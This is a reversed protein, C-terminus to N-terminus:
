VVTPFRHEEVFANVSPLPFVAGRVGPTVLSYTGLETVHSTAREDLDSPLSTLLYAALDRVPLGAPPFDEYGHVYAVEVNARGESWGGGAVIGAPDISLTDTEIPDGYSGDEYSGDYTGGLAEGDVLIRLVRLLRPQRLLLPESPRPGDLIERGFRPRFAVGCASEIARTAIERVDALQEDTAEDSRQLKGRISKLSTVFGGVIETYTKYTSSGDTWAAVLLDVEAMDAADVDVTYYTDEEDEAEVTEVTVDELVISGDSSRTVTVKPTDGLDVPDDGPGPFRLTGTVNRLLEM